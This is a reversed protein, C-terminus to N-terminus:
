PRWVAPRGLQRVADAYVIWYACAMIHAGIHGAADPQTQAVRQTAAERQDDDAAVIIAAAGAVDLTADSAMAVQHAITAVGDTAVEPRYCAITTPNTMYTM